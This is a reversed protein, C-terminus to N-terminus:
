YNDFFEKHADKDELLENIRECISNAEENLWNLKKCREKIEKQRDIVVRHINKIDSLVGDKIIKGLNIPRYGCVNAAINIHKCDENFKEVGSHDHGHINLCWPLGNVPEHSLLIKDSIFLPGDYVENFFPKCKSIKDHNGAILIKQRARICVMYAPNGMDGLCILCDNPMVMRNIIKLQQEISVWNSDMLKCDKDAFHLDSIIYISGNATWHKFPEYLCPIM